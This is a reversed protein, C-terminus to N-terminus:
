KYSDVVDIMKQGGENSALWNEYLDTCKARMADKTASDVENVEIGLDSLQQLLGAEAGVINNHNETELTELCDTLIQQAAEPLQEWINESIMVASSSVQHGTLYAYQFTEQLNEMFVAYIHVEFADVVKTSMSTYVESWGTPTPNGGLDSWIGKAMPAEPVRIKIGNVNTLDSVPTTSYMYRMGQNLMTMLRISHTSLGDKLTSFIQEDKLSSELQDYSQFLFPLNMLGFMPEYNECVGSSIYAMDITGMKLGEMTDRENGLQSAPYVTIQIMGDSAAAVADAYAQLALGPASTGQQGHALSLEIKESLGTSGSAASSGAAASASPATSKSGCGALLCLIMALSLIVSLIKKM